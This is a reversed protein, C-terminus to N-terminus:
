EDKAEYQGRIGNPTACVWKTEDLILHALPGKHTLPGVEDRGVVEDGVLHFLRIGNFTFTKVQFVVFWLSGVLDLRSKLADIKMPTGITGNHLPSEVFFVDERMHYGSLFYPLIMYVPPVDM